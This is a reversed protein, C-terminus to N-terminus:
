NPWSGGYVYTPSGNYTGDNRTQIRQIMKCSHKTGGSDYVDIIDNISLSYRLYNFASYNHGMFYTSFGDTGSFGEKAVVINTDIMAQLSNLDNGYYNGFHGCSSGLCLENYRAVKSSSDPGEVSSLSSSNGSSNPQSVYSQTNVRLREEEALRSAEVATLREEELIREGEIIANAKLM